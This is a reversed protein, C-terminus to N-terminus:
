IPLAYSGSIDSLEGLTGYDFGKETDYEFEGDAFEFTGSYFLTGSKVGIPLLSKIIEAAQANTFGASIVANLPFSISSIGGSASDSEMIRVESPNCSFTLAICRMIDPQNGNCLERAIKAKLLIRYQADNSQGRLQGLRAGYLDLTRGYAEDIDLVARVDAAANRIRQVQARDIELIKANNSGTTKKYSDPLNEVHSNANYSNM